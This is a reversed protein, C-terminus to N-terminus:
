RLKSGNIQKSLNQEMKILESRNQGIKMWKFWYQDMKVLESENPDMRIWKSWNKDM